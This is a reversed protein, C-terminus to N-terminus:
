HSFDIKYTTQFCKETLNQTFRFPKQEHAHEINQNQASIAEQQSANFNPM